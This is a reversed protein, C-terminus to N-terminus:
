GQPYWHDGTAAHTWFAWGLTLPQVNRSHYPDLVRVVDDNAEIVVVVHRSQGYGMLAERDEYLTCLAGHRSRLPPVHERAFVEMPGCFVEAIVPAQAVLAQFVSVDDPNKLNLFLQNLLCRSTLYDTPYGRPPPEGWEAILVGESRWAGLARSVMDACAAVCSNPLSQETHPPTTM